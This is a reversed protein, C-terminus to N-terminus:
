FPLQSRNVLSGIWTAIFAKVLDGLLFPLVGALLANGFSIDTIFSLWVVGLLDVVFVGGVVNALALRWIRKERGRLWAILMVGILFGFYYGGRPGLLIGIGGSMGAFVPLGAAGLLILTIVSFAAQRVTLISGTLMIGLSMASIPSPSMPIPISIFGLVTTLAAFFASYVL